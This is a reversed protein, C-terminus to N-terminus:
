LISKKQSRHIVHLADHPSDDATRNSKQMTDNSIIESENATFASLMQCISSCSFLHSPAIPSAGCGNLSTTRPLIERKNGNASPRLVSIGLLPKLWAKTKNSHFSFSCCNHTHTMFDNDTRTHTFFTIQTHTRTDDILFDQKQRLDTLSSIPKRRLSCSLDVLPQVIRSYKSTNRASM